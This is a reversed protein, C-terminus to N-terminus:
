RRINRTFKRRGLIIAGSTHRGFADDLGVPVSYAKEHKAAM